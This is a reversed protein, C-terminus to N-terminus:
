AIASYASAVLGREDTFPEGIKEIMYDNPGLGGSDDGVKLIAANWEQVKIVKRNM